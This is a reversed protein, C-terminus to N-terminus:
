TCKKMKKGMTSYENTDQGDDCEKQFKENMTNM